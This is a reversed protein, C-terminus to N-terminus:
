RNRNPGQDDRWRRYLDILDERARPDLDEDRVHGAAAVILRIQKFHETCPDCATLHTEFRVRDDAALKGDLYDM